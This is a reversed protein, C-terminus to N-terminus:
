LPRTSFLPFDLSSENLAPLPMPWEMITTELVNGGDTAGVPGSYHNYLWSTSSKEFLLGDHEVRSCQVRGAQFNCFFDCCWSAELLARKVIRESIHIAFRKYQWYTCLFCFIIRIITIIIISILLIFSYHQFFASFCFHIPLTFHFKKMM